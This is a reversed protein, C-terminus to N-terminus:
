RMNLCFLCVSGAISLAFVFIMMSWLIYFATNCVSASGLVFVGGFIIWIINFVLEISMTTIYTCDLWWNDCMNLNLAICYLLTLVFAVSAYGILYKSFSLASRNDCSSGVSQIGIVLSAVSLAVLPVLHFIAILITIRNKNEM